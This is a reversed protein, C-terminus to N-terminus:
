YGLKWFITFSHHEEFGFQKYLYEGSQSAHLVTYPIQETVIDNLMYKTMRNGLGKRQYDKLTAVMYIGATDEDFFVLGTTVPKGHFYTLYLRIDSRALLQQFLSMTIREKGFTAANVIRIWEQLETETSVTITTSADNGDSFMEQKTVDLAMGKWRLVPKFGFDDLYQLHQPYSEANSLILLSPAKKHTIQDSIFSIQERDLKLSDIDYIHYPWFGQKEWVWKIEPTNHYHILEPYNQFVSYFHYLNNEIKLEIAMNDTM